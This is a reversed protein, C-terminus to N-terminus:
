KDNTRLEARTLTAVTGFQVPNEDRMFKNETKCKAQLASLIKLFAIYPASYSYKFISDLYFNELQLICM